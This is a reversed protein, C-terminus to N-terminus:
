GVFPHGPAEEDAGPAEGLFVIGSELSGEGFVYKKEGHYSSYYIDLEKKAQAKNGM